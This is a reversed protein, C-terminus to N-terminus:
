PKFYIESGGNSYVMDCESVVPSLASTNFMLSGMGLNDSVVGIRINLYKLYIYDGSDLISTNTIQRMTVDPLLAYSKLVTVESNWDAYVTSTSNINKPLWKAGYVEQDIFYQSHTGVQISLDSSKERRELDLSYSYPYGQTVHDILGINFLYTMVLISAIIYIWINKAKIKRFKSLKPPLHPSVSKSAIRLLLIGGLVSFPALFLIVISYFRTMNMTPALNPVGLCLILIVMSVIAVSRFESSFGFIKPKVALALVGIVM